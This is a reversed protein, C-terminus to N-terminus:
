DTGVKGGNDLDGKKTIQVEVTRVYIPVSTTRITCQLWILVPSLSRTLLTFREGRKNSRHDTDVHVVCPGRVKDRVM